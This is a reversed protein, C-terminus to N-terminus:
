YLSLSNLWDMAIRKRNELDSMVQEYHAQLNTNKHTDVLYRMVEIHLISDAAENFKRGRIIATIAAKESETLFAMAGEVSRSKLAIEAAYHLHRLAAEIMNLGTTKKYQHPVIEGNPKRNIWIPFASYRGDKGVPMENPQGRYTPGDPIIRAYEPAVTVSVDPYGAFDTVVKYNTVDISGPVTALMARSLPMRSSSEMPYAFWRNLAYESTWMSINVGQSWYARAKYLHLKIQTGADLGRFVAYNKSSGGFASDDPVHVRSLACEGSTAQLVTKCEQQHEATAFCGPAQPTGPHGLACAPGLMDAKFSGKAITREGTIKEGETVVKEEKMVEEKKPSVARVARLEAEIVDTHAKLETFSTHVARSQVLQESLLRIEADKAALKKECEAHDSTAAESRTIKMADIRRYGEATSALIKLQEIEADKSALKKECQAHDMAHKELNAVNRTNIAKYEELKKECEAAAEDDRILARLSDLEENCHKLDATSGPERVTLAAIEAQKATILDRLKKIVDKYDTVTLNNDITLKKIEATDNNHLREAAQSRITLQQVELKITSLEKTLQDNAAMASALSRNCEALRESAEEMQSTGPSTPISRLSNIEAHLEAITADKEALVTDGVRTALAESLQARLTKLSNQLELMRSASTSDQITAELDAVKATCNSLLREREQHQLGQQAIQAHLAELEATNQVPTSRYVDLAMTLNLNDENLKRINEQLAVIEARAATLEANDLALRTKLEEIVEDRSTRAAELEKRLEEFQGLIAATAPTGSAVAQELRTIEAAHKERLKAIQDHLDRIENALTQNRENALRQLRAMMEQKEDLNIECDSLAGQIEVKQQKCGELLATTAALATGADSIERDISAQKALLGDITATKASKEATLTSVQAELEVIRPQTETNGAALQVSLTALQEKCANGEAETRDLAETAINLDADVKAKERGLKALDENCKLFRSELDLVQPRSPLADREATLTRITAQLEAKEAQYGEVQRVLRQMEEKGTAELEAVAPAIVAPELAPEAEEEHFPIPLRATRFAANIIENYNNNVTMGPYNYAKPWATAFRTGVPAWLDAAAGYPLKTSTLAVIDQVDEDTLGNDSKTVSIALKAVELAIAYRARADADGKGFTSPIAELQRKLKAVLYDKAAQGACGGTEQAPRGERKAAGGHSICDLLGKRAPLGLQHGLWVLSLAQDAYHALKQHGDNDRYWDAEQQAPLEAM